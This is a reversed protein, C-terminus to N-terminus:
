SLCVLLPSDTSITACEIPPSTVRTAISPEALPQSPKGLPLSLTLSTTVSAVGCWPIMSAFLYSLVWHSEMTGPESNMSTSWSGAFRNLSAQADSVSQLKTPDSSSLVTLWSEAISL